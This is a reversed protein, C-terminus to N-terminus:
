EAELAQIERLTFREKVQVDPDPEFNTDQPLCALGCILEAEQAEGDIFWLRGGPTAMFGDVEEIHDALIDTSSPIESFYNLDFGGHTHFSAVVDMDRPPQKARCSAKWGRRIRSTTLKGDVYGFYGCYERNRELSDVQIDRLTETIFEMEADDFSWVM